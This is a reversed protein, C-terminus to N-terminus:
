HGYLASVQTATLATPYYYVDDVEGNLQDVPLYNWLGRGIILDGPANWPTAFSATGELTGDVYLSMTETSLNYTATVQYWTGATAAPGTIGTATSSGSDASRVTFCINGGALQLYFGSLLQADESLFTQTTSTSNFKVWTSVTYSSATNIPTGNIAVDANETGDMSLAYTGVQGSAWSTDGLLLGQPSGTIFDSTTTGSGENFPFYGNAGTGLAYAENANIASPIFRVDDIDGNTFDVHSGNWLARGISSHGTATWGSSFSASGALVGNVYLSITGASANYVGIVHYWTGTTATAGTVATYSAGTSDSSRVVFTFKGGSLQLYFPSINTGDISAFTQNGSVSNLNVWAAVSYSAATNLVTTPIDVYSTSGGTLAVAYPSYKGTTWSAGAELTGTNGHHTYDNARTGSNVPFDYQAGYSATPASVGSGNYAGINPAATSSVSNGFFDSGGNGSVLTGADIAPSGTQLEYATATSRGSGGGGPSVLLPDSTIKSSDSPESSPHSGYFLNHSWTESSDYGGSGLNYILNNYFDVNDANSVGATIAANNDPGEYVTNNYFYTTGTNAVAYLKSWVGSMLGDNQSINYRVISDTSGSTTGYSCCFELQGASNDHTYNYQLVSDVSEWDFDFANGDNGIFAQRAVENDQWVGDNSVATWLGAGGYRYGNDTAVNYEVLPAQCFVCVIANGGANTVTNNNIVVNSTDVAHGNGNLSGIYIGSSDDNTLTNGQILVGDWGNTSYSDSLNFAIGASTSPQVGESLSWYGLVDHINNDVIDIGNLIGSTDNEVQIGSRVAASSATNTIELNEITWYQQDDLYIAATAGAGELLPASGSGYSSITIPSGSSGSGQPALEGSWVGGDQFLIQNGATFTTSNVNTLTKWPTSSSCGSNSDSGSSSSVYYTTCTAAEAAPVSVVAVATSLLCTTALATALRSLRSTRPM